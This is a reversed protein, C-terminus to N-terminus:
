GRGVKHAKQAIIPAYRGRLFHVFNTTPQIAQNLM